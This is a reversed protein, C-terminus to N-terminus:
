KGSAAALKQSDQAVAANLQNEARQLTVPDLVGSFVVIYTNGTNATNNAVIQVGDITPGNYFHFALADPVREWQKALQAFFDPTNMVQSYNGSSTVTLTNIDFLSASTSVVAICEVNDGGGITQQSQNTDVTYVTVRPIYSGVGVGQMTSMTLVQGAAAQAVSVEVALTDDGVLNIIEGFMLIFSKDGTVSNIAVGEMSSPYGAIGLAYLNGTMVVYPTGRRQLTVTVNISEMIPVTITAGTPDTARINIAVAEIDKGKEYQQQRGVGSISYQM